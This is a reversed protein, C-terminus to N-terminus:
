GVFHTGIMRFVSEGVLAVLGGFSLAFTTPLLPRSRFIKQLPGHDTTCVRGGIAVSPTTLTSLTDLRFLEDRACSNRTTSSMECNRKHGLQDGTMTRVKEGMCSM